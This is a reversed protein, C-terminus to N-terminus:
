EEPLEFKRMKQTSCRTHAHGYQGRCSIVDKLGFPGGCVICEVAEVGCASCREGTPTVRGAPFVSPPGACEPCALKGGSDEEYRWGRTALGGVVEVREGDHPGDRLGCTDCTANFRMPQIGLLVLVSRWSM